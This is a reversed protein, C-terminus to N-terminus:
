AARAHTPACTIHWPLLAEIDQLTTANPLCAFVTRLYATPDLGNAKATMILSYLAASAKAGRVTDAFLWNRRGLAFPRIANEAANNTMAVEAHDLFVILRPWQRDLYSLAEGLKSRPAVKPRQENLWQRLAECVARSERQRVRLRTHASEDRLRHEIAFLVQMWHLAQAARRVAAPPSQGHPLPKNPNLGAAKFVEHFRRRAHAWCGASILGYRGIAADYGAYGDVHLLGEFGDLLRLPVERSRSPDYDFLIVPRDPEGSVRCWMYSRSQPTKGSEKLVQVPTEDMHMVHADLLQDNLLNILPQILEASKIMWHSMTSRHMQVGLRAFVAAQRYLPWHDCYKSVAVHALLGPSVQAGRIPANPKPATVAHAHCCPCAYKLQVHRLVRVIAPIIDLQESIAQGIVSLETGDHPCVREDDSLTHLVELRELTDPLPRKAGRRRHHARVTRGDLAPPLSSTEDPAGSDDFLAMQAANDHESSAGYRHALALHLRERLYANEHRLRRLEQKLQTLEDM